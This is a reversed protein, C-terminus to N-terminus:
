NVPSNAGPPLPARSKVDDVRRTQGHQAVWSLVGMESNINFSIEAKQYFKTRGGSGAKFSIQQHVPDITYLHVYPIKFRDYISTVTKQLLEDIDLLYTM